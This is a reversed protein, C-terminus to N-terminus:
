ALPVNSNSFFVSLDVFEYESTVNLPCITFVTRTFPM